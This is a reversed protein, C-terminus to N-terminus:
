LCVLLCPCILGVEGKLMDWFNEQDQDSTTVTSIHGGAINSTVFKGRSLVDMWYITSSQNKSCKTLMQSRRVQGPTWNGFLNQPYGPWSPDIEVDNTVTSDDINRLDIWPWPGSPAAHRYRSIM